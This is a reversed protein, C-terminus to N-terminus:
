DFIIKSYNTKGYFIYENTLKVMTLKAMFIKIVKIKAMIMKHMTPKAM